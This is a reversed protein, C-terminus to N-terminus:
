GRPFLRKLLGGPRSREAEPEGLAALQERAERNDPSLDLVRRLTTTARTKLGRDRYIQALALLGGVNGPEEGVLGLLLEEAQKMWNVNKMYARALLLRGDQRDRGEARLVAPELIQIAEWYKEEALSRAARRIAEAALRAEHAPDYARAEPRAQGPAPGLESEYRARIRPNRLVEYAEGLGMFIAEIKDRLDALAPDHHVDPHFRKALRFYAEKVEADTADRTIGLADFHTGRERAEFAELIEIRRPDDTLPAELVIEEPDGAQGDGPPVAAGPGVTGTQVLAPTPPPAFVPAAPPEAALRPKAPLALYEITGTSLLGFLSRHTAEAPMPIMAVVERASLTGDVRSLVFGDAPTLTLRQFRLLPDAALGLVQDIDGLYYRVVDPDAVSRAAELILDGTSIKLTVDGPAAAFADEAEFRYDGETWSFVKSLIERVHLGVADEIADGPLMGQELLVQGLRKRDRLVFGTARKLDAAGLLGQRVLVEGMRDERVNTDAHVIHGWRFRLARREDGRAFTLMGSRRGVYLDRMVVPLVGEGLSGQM